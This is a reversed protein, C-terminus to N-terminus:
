ARPGRGVPDLQVGPEGEVVRGRDAAVQGLEADAVEVARRVELGGGAAGVAIVDHIVPPQVGLEAAGFAMALEHLAQGRGAEALHQVYHGVVHRQGPPGVGPPPVDELVARRADVGAVEVDVPVRRLALQGGGHQHRDEAVLVAPHQLGALQHDVPLASRKRDAVTVLLRRDRRAGEAPRVPRQGLRRGPCSGLLQLAQRYGEGAQRVAVAGVPSGHDLPVPVLLHQAGAQGVQAPGPGLHALRDVGLDLRQVAVGIGEVVQQALLVEPQGVPAGPGFLEGVAPEEVDLRQGSQPHLVLRDEGVGVAEDEGQDGVAREVAQPYVVHVAEGIGLTVQDPQAVGGAAHVDHHLLDELVSLLQAPGPRHRSGRAVVEQVVDAAQEDVRELLRGHEAAVGPEGPLLPLVGLDRVRGLVLDHLLVEDGLHLAHGAQQGVDALAVTALAVM